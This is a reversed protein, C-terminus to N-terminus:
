VAKGFSPHLVNDAGGGDIVKVKWGMAAAAEKLGNVVGLDGANASLQPVFVVTAGKRQAKPGATPGDWTASPSAAKKLTPLVATVAPNTSTSTSSCTAAKAGAASGSATAGGGASSGSSAGSCATLILAAGAASTAALLRSWKM